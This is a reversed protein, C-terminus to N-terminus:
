STLKRTALRFRRYLKNRAVIRIQIVPLAFTVHVCWAMPKHLTIAASAALLAASLAVYGVGMAVAISVMMSGLTAKAYQVARTHM